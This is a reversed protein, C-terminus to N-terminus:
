TILLRERFPTMGTLYVTPSGTRPLGGRIDVWQHTHHGPGFAITDEGAKYAGMGSKLFYVGPLSDHAEVGSFTGGPRFIFELAFPVQDTGGIEVDLAFGGDVESIVVQAHYRQVESQPRLARPMKEWDGDNPLHEVPLPQSYPGELSSKLIFTGAGEEIHESVFQGKGFFASAFRIGQLVAEKKHFNFFAASNALISADYNGRRIRALGSHTFLKSYSVPLPTSGPLEQWLSPDELFYHLFGTVKSFATQEILRCAAAFQPNKDQIALYRYPYYYNELFGVISNDQRGSAETVIEGNPHIYYFTMALNKRVYDLLEPMDFGRATSILVRNSLSSYIYSSRENYQGDSDLDIREALWQEARKRYGPEPSIKHLEALASCVVWRHNPTHIGGVKLAEGARELFTWLPKTIRDTNPVDSAALLRYGPALWKVIFGTDPTSHFNTTVLDITGDAHQLKLLVGVAAGVVEILRQDGFYASPESILANLATKILSTVSHATVMGVGDVVSGFQPSSPDAETRELISKLSQDNQRILQVVWDPMTPNDRKRELGEYSFMSPIFPAMVAVKSNTILFERRKM